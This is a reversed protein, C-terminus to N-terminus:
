AHCRCTCPNGGTNGGCGHKSGDAATVAHHGINCQTSKAAAAAEGEGHDVGMGHPDSIQEQWTSM